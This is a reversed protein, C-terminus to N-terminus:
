QPRTVFCYGQRSWNAVEVFAFWCLCFWVPQGRLHRLGGFESLILLSVGCQLVHSGCRGGVSRSACLRGRMTHPFALLDTYTLSSPSYLAAVQASESSCGLCIGIKELAKCMPQAAFQLFM